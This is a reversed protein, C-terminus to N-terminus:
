GIGRGLACHSCHVTPVVGWVHTCDGTLVQAGLYELGACESGLSPPHTILNTTLPAQHPGM